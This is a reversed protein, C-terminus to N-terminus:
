QKIPRMSHRFYDGTGASNAAISQGQIRFMYRTIQELRPCFMFSLPTTNVM